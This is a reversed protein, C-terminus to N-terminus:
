GARPVLTLRRVMLEKPHPMARGGSEALQLAGRSRRGVRVPRGDHPLIHGASWPRCPPHVPGARWACQSIQVAPDPLLHSRRGRQAAIFDACCIRRSAGARSAVAAATAGARDVPVRHARATGATAAATPTSNPSLSLPAAVHQAPETRNAAVVQNAGSVQRGPPTPHAPSTATAHAPKQQPEAQRAAVSRTLAADPRVAVPAQKPESVVPM